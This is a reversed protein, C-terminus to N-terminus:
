ISTEDRSNGITYTPGCLGQGRGRTERQSGDTSNNISGFVTPKKPTLAEQYQNRLSLTETRQEKIIANLKDIMDQLEKLQRANSEQQIRLQQQQNTEQDELEKSKKKEEMWRNNLENIEARLESLLRLHESEKKALTDMHQSQLDIKEKRAIKLEEKLIQLASQFVKQREIELKPAQYWKSKARTRM